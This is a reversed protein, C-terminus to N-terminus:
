RLRLESRLGGGWRGGAGAAACTAHRARRAHQQQATPLSLMSVPAGSPEPRSTMVALVRIIQTSTREPIAWAVNPSTREAEPVITPTVIGYGGHEIAGEADGDATGVEAGVVAAGEIAGETVGVSAGVVAVGVSAGVVAVGVSAGVVAVGVLAGVVAVGVSAGV